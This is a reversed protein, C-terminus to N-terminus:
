ITKGGADDERTSSDENKSRRELYRKIAECRKRKKCRVTTDDIYVEENDFYYTQPYEVDPEFDRCEDCYPQVDIKIM